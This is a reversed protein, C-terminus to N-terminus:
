THKSYCSISLKFFIEIYIRCNKKEIVGHPSTSLLKQFERPPFIKTQWLVILSFTTISIIELLSLHKGFRNRKMRFWYWRLLLSGDRDGHSESLFWGVSPSSLSNKKNKKKFMFSGFSIFFNKFYFLSFLIFMKIKNEMCVLKLLFIKSYFLKICEHMLQHFPPM